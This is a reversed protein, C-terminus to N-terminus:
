FILLYKKIFCLKGSRSECNSCEYGLFSFFKYFFFLKIKKVNVNKNQLKEEHERIIQNIEQESDLSSMEPDAMQDMTDDIM